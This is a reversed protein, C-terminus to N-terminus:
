VACAHTVSGLACVREMEARLEPKGLDFGVDTYGRLLMRGITTPHFLSQRKEVYQRELVKKIHDAVTALLPSCM